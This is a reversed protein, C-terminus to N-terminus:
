TVSQSELAGDVTGSDVAIIVVEELVSVDNLDDYQDDNVNIEIYISVEISEGPALEVAAADSGPTTQRNGESSISYDSEAADSSGTSGDGDVFTDLDSPIESALPVPNPPTPDAGSAVTVEGSGPSDSVVNSNDIYFEVNVDDSVNTDDDSPPGDPTDGDVGISGDQLGGETAIFFSVADDGNNTITIIDEENTAARTNLSDAGGGTLNLTLASDSTGEQQVFDNTDENNPQIGLLANADGSVNVDATREAEVTTFAGTAALGGVASFAMLLALLKGKPIM